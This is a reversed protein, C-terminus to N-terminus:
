AAGPLCPAAPWENHEQVAMVLLAVPLVAVGAHKRSDESISVLTSRALLPGPFNALPHFYVNYIISSLVYCLSKMFYDALGVKVRQLVSSLNGVITALIEVWNGIMIDVLCKYM